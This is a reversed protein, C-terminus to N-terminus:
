LLKEKERLFDILKKIQEESSGSIMEPPPKEGPSSLNLYRPVTDQVQTSSVTQLPKKKAKMIGQLSPYRPQNLGKDASLVLPSSAKLLEEVGGGCERTLHFAGEKFELANVNTVFPWNLWRALMQPVAFDNTDVALKGCFVLSLDPVKALHESLIRACTLPDRVEQEVTIHIAEDAGLALTHLLTEKVREPGLSLTFVKGGLLPKLKLAEELAFEDYPSLIWKVRSEDISSTNEIVKLPQGTDPVQRVPVAINM